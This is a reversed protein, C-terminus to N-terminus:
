EAAPKTAPVFPEHVPVASGTVRDFEAWAVANKGRRKVVYMLRDAVRVADVARPPLEHFTVAGISCTIGAQEDESSFSMFTRLKEVLVQAGERDTEPLLLAFEDGGLRAVVDTERVIKKMCHAFERLVRDGESHGRTDNITKLDDLDIYVLVFPAARRRAMAITAELREQFARPNLVSTLADTRALLYESSLRSRLVNILFANIFLFAMVVAGNWLSVAPHRFSHTIWFDSVVWVIGALVTVAVGDGWGVYWTALAVPGFYFLSISVDYGTLYDAIGVIAVGAVAIARLATRSLGDLTTHVANFLGSPM